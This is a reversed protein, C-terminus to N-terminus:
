SGNHLEQMQVDAAQAAVGGGAGAAKEAEAKAELERAYAELRAEQEEASEKVQADWWLCPSTICWCTHPQINHM